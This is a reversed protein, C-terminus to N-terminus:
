WNDPNSNSLQIKANVKRMSAELIIKDMVEIYEPLDPGGLEELPQIAELFKQYVLDSYASIKNKM